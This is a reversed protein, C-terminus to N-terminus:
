FQIKDLINLFTKIITNKDFKFERTRNTAKETVRLYNGCPYFFIAYQRNKYKFNIM